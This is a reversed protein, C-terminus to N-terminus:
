KKKLSIEYRLCYVRILVVCVAYIVVHVVNEEELVNGCLFCM